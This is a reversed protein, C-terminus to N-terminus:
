KTIKYNSCNKNNFRFKNKNWLNEEELVLEQAKNIIIIKLLNEPLKKGLLTSLLNTKKNNFQNNTLFRLFKSIM